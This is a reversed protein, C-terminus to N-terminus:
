ATETPETADENLELSAKHPCNWQRHSVKDDKQQRKSYLCCINLTMTMSCVSNLIIWFGKLMEVDLADFVKAGDLANGVLKVAM